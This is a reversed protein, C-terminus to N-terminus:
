DPHKLSKEWHDKPDELNNTDCFKGVLQAVEAANHKASLTIPKKRTTLWAAFGFVAESPSLKSIAELKM